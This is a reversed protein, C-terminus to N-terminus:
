WHPEWSAHNCKGEHQFLGPLRFIRLTVEVCILAMM